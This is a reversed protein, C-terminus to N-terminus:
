RRDETTGIKQGFKAPVVTGCEPCIGSVNGKLSYDCTDCRRELDLPFRRQCVAPLLFLILVPVLPEFCFLNLGIGPDLRSEWIACIALNLILLALGAVRWGWWATRPQSLTSRNLWMWVFIGLLLLDGCRVIWLVGLATPNEFNYPAPNYRYEAMAFHCEGNQMDVAVFADKAGDVLEFEGPLRQSSQLPKGSNFRKELEDRKPQRDNAKYFAQIWNDVQQGFEASNEEMCRQALDHANDIAEQQAHVAYRGVPLALMLVLWGALWLRSKIRSDSM